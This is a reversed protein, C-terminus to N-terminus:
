EVSIRKGQDTRVILTRGDIQEVTALGGKLIGRAKQTGRFAIRDGEGVCLLGRSTRFEEVKCVRGRDIELAQIAANLLRVEDNTYAFIFRRGRENVTDRM